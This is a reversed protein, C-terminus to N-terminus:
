CYEKSVVGSRPDKVFVIGGRCSDVSPANKETVGTAYPIPADTYIGPRFVASLLTWGSSQAFKEFNAHNSLKSIAVSSPVAGVAISACVMCMIMKRINM